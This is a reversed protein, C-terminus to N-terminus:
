EARIGAQKVIRTWKDVDSKIVVTLESPTAVKPELGQGVWRQRLEPSNVVKSIEQSLRSIVESPTGAPVLIGAWDSLDLGPVGAEAMTPLNPAANVRQDTTVALAKLKGARM